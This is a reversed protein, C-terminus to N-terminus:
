VYIDEQGMRKGVAHEVFYSYYTDAITKRSRVRIPIRSGGRLFFDEEVTQVYDMNVLYSQHCRLFRRDKMQAAVEDLKGKARVTAGNATHFILSHDQSEVYCLSDYDFFQYEAGCRLVLRPCVPAALLRDILAALKQEDLPKLLYGAAAM